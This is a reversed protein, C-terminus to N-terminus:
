WFIMRAPLSFIWIKLWNCAILFHLSLFCGDPCSEAVHARPEIYLTNFTNSDYITIGGWMPNMFSVNNYTM